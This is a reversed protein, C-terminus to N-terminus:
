RMTTSERLCGEAAGFGSNGSEWVRAAFEGTHGQEQAGNCPVLSNCIAFGAEAAEDEHLYTFRRVRAVICSLKGGAREGTICPQQEKIRKKKLSQVLHGPTRQQQERQRLARLHVLEGHHGHSSSQQGNHQSFYTISM